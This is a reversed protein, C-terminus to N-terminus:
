LHFLKAEWTEQASFDLFLCHHDASDRRGLRWLKQMRVHCSLPESLGWTASWLLPKNGGMIGVVPISIAYLFNSKRCLVCRYIDGQQNLLLCSIQPNYTNSVAEWLPEWFQLGNFMNFSNMQQLDCLFKNLYWSYFRLKIINHVFNTNFWIYQLSHSHTGEPMHKVGGNWFPHHSLLSTYCTGYFRFNLPDCM